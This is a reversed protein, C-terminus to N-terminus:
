SNVADVAGGQARSPVALREVSARCETYPARGETGVKIQHGREREPTM